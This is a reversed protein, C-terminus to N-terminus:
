AFRPRAIEAWAAIAGDVARMLEPRTAGDGARIALGHAVTVYFEVIYQLDAEPSVNGEAVGRRLRTTIAEPAHLRATKLYTHPGPRSPANRTGTHLLCGKPKGPQTFSEVGRRLMAEVGERATAAEELARVPPACVSAIYLDAIEQFLAEKSRFAHYFSPPSIGGMAVQLDDLTVGDYGRAWFLELARQLAVARDFGAPRGRKAM